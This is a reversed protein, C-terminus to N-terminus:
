LWFRYFRHLLFDIRSDISVEISCIEKASVLLETKVDVYQQKQLNLDVLEIFHFDIIKGDKNYLGIRIIPAHVINHSSNVIRYKISGGGDKVMDEVYLDQINVNEMKSFFNLRSNNKYLIISLFLIMIILVISLIFSCKPKYVSLQAPLHVDVNFLSDDNNKYIRAQEKNISKEAKQYLWVYKCKSCRVKRGLDGISADPVIFNTNCNICTIYM